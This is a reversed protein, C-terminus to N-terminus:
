SYLRAMQDGKVKYGCLRLVKLTMGHLTLFASTCNIDSSHTHCTTIVNPALLSLDVQSPM